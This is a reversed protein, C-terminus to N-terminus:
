RSGGLKARDEAPLAAVDANQSQQLARIYAIVAWRDAPPVRDGYGYMTGHGNAIVDALYAAKAQKLRDIALNPPHPFGRAVIMGDGAGTRGHCPSCFIDFREHGRTLMDATITAPQAVPLNPESRPVTGAVPHRMTSGDQFFDNQDWNQAKGQTVMDARDCAAVGLGLALAAMTTLPRPGVRM